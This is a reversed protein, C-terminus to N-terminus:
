KPLDPDFCPHLLFCQSRHLFGESERVREVTADGVLRLVGRTM